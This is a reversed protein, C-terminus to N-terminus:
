KKDILCIIGVLANLYKIIGRDGPLKPVDDDYKKMKTDRSLDDYTFEECDCITSKTVSPETKCMPIIINVLKNTGLLEEYAIINQLNQSITMADKFVMLDEM